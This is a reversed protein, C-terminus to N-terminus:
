VMQLISKAMRISMMEPVMLMAMGGDGDEDTDVEVYDFSGNGKTETAFGDAFGDAYGDDHGNLDATFGILSHSLSAILCDLMMAM